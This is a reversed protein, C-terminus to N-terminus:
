RGNFYKRAYYTDIKDEYRDEIALGSTNSVRTNPMLESCGWGSCRYEEFLHGNQCLYKQLMQLYFDGKDKCKKELRKLPDDEAPTLNEGGQKVPGINRLKISLFPIADYVTYWVLVDRIKKMLIKENATTNQPSATLSSILREYLRTGIAEQIYTEEASKAFPYIEDMDQNGPIPSNDKLYKESIFFARAM